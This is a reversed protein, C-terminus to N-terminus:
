AAQRLGEGDHTQTPQRWETPELTEGEGLNFSAVASRLQGALDALESASAVVEEVQASMEETAASSEEAAASAQETVAAVSEMSERVKEAVGGMETASGANREAVRAVGDITSVMETAAATVEEAAGAIEEVQSSVNTVAALIQSLADGAQDALASGAEVEKSGQETANVSATVGEQVSEILGAIEKTAETVREALKRVEDAVVAFGRGQEGARAAEIAANLALLNTQAAIDDIVSVIKGIQESHEGLHAVHESVEAVADRVRGMGDVTQRVVATGNDAAASASRSGEAASQANAAVGDVAQSVQGVIERAREVADAQERSGSSIEGVADVLDQVLRTVDQVASAQDQSGKAVHQSTAAIGQTAQGSQEAASSLENSSYAVSDATRRVTGITEGLQDVMRNISEGTQSVQEGMANFASAMVGVEDRTKVSVPEVSINARQTLNGSAVERAVRGLEPLTVDAMQRLRGAIFAVPNAIQRAVLLAALVVVAAAFGFVILTNRLLAAAPANVEAEDIEALIAWRQGGLDVPAYASFVPVGRYDDIVQVGTQGALAQRAGETDIELGLITSEDSFRSDSRMLLDQGVLYTEGSEGMGANTQMVENIRGIPMQFILVGVTQGDKVVPSGIFSAAAGYSPNYTAFDELYAESGEELALAGRFAAGIGTDAYAGTTLSTGYDTEKFVSYVIHGTEADVLFIDYYGFEELFGNFMPPFTRHVAAYDTGDQPDVLGNKSGVPNPNNAIFVSQAALAYPDTPMFSSLAGQTGTGEAYRPLFEGTYYGRVADADTNTQGPLMHFAASFAGMAEVTANSQSLTRVQGAITGFYGEIEHAKVERLATLKAKAEDQLASQTSAYGMWAVAALPVLCLVLFAAILKSKISGALRSLSFMGRDGSPVALSAM